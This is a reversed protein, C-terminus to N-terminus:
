VARDPGTSAPIEVPRPTLIPGDPSSQELFRVGFVGELRVPDLVEAVSGSTALRGDADLLLAHEGLRRALTFDHVVLVIRWGESSLRRLVSCTHMAWAPDMASMPEDALLVRTSDAPMDRLQAIARALAIRQQQGVSLENFLAGVYGSADMLGLADRISADNAGRAYRGMAVVERATFAGSLWTRQPVYALQAARESAGLTQLDRGGLLVRGARPPVVGLMLRLLTSKGAGNPGLVVTIGGPVELSVDRLVDRAGDYSFTVRELRVTM